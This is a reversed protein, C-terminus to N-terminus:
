HNIVAYDNLSDRPFSVFHTNSDGYLAGWYSYKRNAWNGVNESALLNKNLKMHWNNNNKKM